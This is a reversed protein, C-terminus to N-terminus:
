PLPYPPSIAPLGMRLDRSRRETAQRWLKPLLLVKLTHFVAKVEETAESSYGEQSPDVV